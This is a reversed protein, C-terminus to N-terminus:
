TTAPEVCCVNRMKVRPTGVVRLTVKVAYKSEVASLLTSVTPATVPTVTEDTPAFTVVNRPPSPPTAVTARPAAAGAGSSTVSDVL